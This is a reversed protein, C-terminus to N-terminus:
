TVLLVFVSDVPLENKVNLYGVGCPRVTLYGLAETWECGSYYADTDYRYVALFVKEKDLGHYVMFAEYPELYLWIYKVIGFALDDFHHGDWLDVNLNRVWLTSDTVIPPTDACTAIFRCATVDRRVDLHGVINM